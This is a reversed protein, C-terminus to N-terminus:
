GLPKTTDDEEMVELRTAIRTLLQSVQEVRGMLRELAPEVEKTLSHNLVEVRLQLANVQASVEHIRSSTLEQFQRLDSHKVYDAIDVKTVYNGLVHHLEGKTVAQDSFKRDPFFLQKGLLLIAMVAAGNFLWHGFKNPDVDPLQAFFFVGSLFLTKVM